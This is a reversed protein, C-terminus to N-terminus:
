TSPTTPAPYGVNHISGGMINARTTSPQHGTRHLSCTNSTHGVKVKYGYTWCYGVKDWAPKINSYHSPCVCAETLPTPATPAPSTPIGATCMQAISLQINAIAKTLTANTAVLNEITTNKQITTNALNDLSSAMQQAQKLKAAQNAGFTTKGATMRKIAHMEAFAATWHAKWNPWTHNLIPHRKQKQALSVDHKQM